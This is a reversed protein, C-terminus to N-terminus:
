RTQKLDEVLWEGNQHHLHVVYRRTQGGDAVTAYADVCGSQTLSVKEVWVDDLAGFSDAAGFALWAQAAEYEGLQKRGVRSLLGLAYAENSTLKALILKNQEAEPLKSLDRGKKRLGSTLQGMKASAREGVSVLEERARKDVYERAFFQSAKDSRRFKVETFFRQLQSEAAREPKPQPKKYEALLDSVASAPIALGLRETSAHRGTVVGLVRGCSDVLPGGSNGPNINANTQIFAHSGLLRTSATVTGPELTLVPASGAVGPYGLAAVSTGIAPTEVLLPLRRGGLAGLPRLLALDQERSVKVVELPASRQAGDRLVVEAVHRTGAAVVHYNSVVLQEQGSEVLFGSGSGRETRVLVTAAGALRQLQATTLGSAECSSSEASAPPAAADRARAAPYGRCALTALLLAFVFPLHCASM